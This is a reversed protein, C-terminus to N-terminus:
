PSPPVRSGVRSESGGLREGLPKRHLTGQNGELVGVAPSFSLSNVSGVARIVAKMIQSSTQQRQIGDGPTLEMPGPAKGM